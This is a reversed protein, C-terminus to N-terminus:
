MPKITKSAKRIVSGTAIALVGFAVFYIGIFTIIILTAPGSHMFLVVGLILSILGTFAALLRASTPASKAKIGAIIQNIGTILVLLAFVMVILNVLFAPNTLLIIGASLCFLGYVLLMKKGNESKIAKILAILGNLLLFIGLFICIFDISAIPMTIFFIGIIVAIIGRSIIFDWVTHQALKSFINSQTTM